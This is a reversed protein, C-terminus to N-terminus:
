IEEEFARNQSLPAQGIYFAFGVEPKWSTPSVAKRNLPCYYNVILGVDELECPFIIEGNKKCLGYKDFIVDDLIGHGVFFVNDHDEDRGRFSNNREYLITFHDKDFKM